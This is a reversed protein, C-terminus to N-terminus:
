GGGHTMWMLGIFGRGILAVGVEYNLGTAPKLLRLDEGLPLTRTGETVFVRPQERFVTGWEALLEPARLIEAETFIRNFVHLLFRRAEDWLCEEWNRGQALPAIKATFAEILEGFIPPTDPRGRIKYSYLEGIVLRDFFALNWIETRLPEFELEYAPPLNLFRYPEKRLAEEWLYRDFPVPVPPLFLDYDVGQLGPRRRGTVVQGQRDPHRRQCSQVEGWVYIDRYDRLAESVLQELEARDGHSLALVDWKVSWADREPTATKLLALITEPDEKSFLWTCAKRLRAERDEPSIQPWDPNM